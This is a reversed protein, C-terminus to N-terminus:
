DFIALAYQGERCFKIPLGVFQLAAQPGYRRGLADGLNLHLLLGRLIGVM